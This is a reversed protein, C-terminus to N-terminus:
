SSRGRQRPLSAVLNKALERAPTELGFWSCSRGAKEMQFRFAKEQNEFILAYPGGAPQDMTKDDSVVLLFPADPNGIAMDGAQPPPRVVNRYNTKLIKTHRSELEQRVRRLTTVVFTQPWGHDLMRSGTLLAFADYDSFLVEGGRGPADQSFFAYNAREPDASRAARKLGRDLDLLRKMRTRLESSPQAAREGVTRSIAEEVQNRKYGKM